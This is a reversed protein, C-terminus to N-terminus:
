YLMILGFPEAESGGNPTWECEMSDCSTSMDTAKDFSRMAQHALEDRIECTEGHYARVRRAECERTRRGNAGASLHADLDIIQDM